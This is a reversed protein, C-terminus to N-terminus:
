TYQSIMRLHKLNKQGTSAHSSPKLDNLAVLQAHATLKDTVAYGEQTVGLALILIRNSRLVPRSPVKPTYTSTCGFPTIQGNTFM